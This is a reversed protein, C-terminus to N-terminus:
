LSKLYELLARKDVDSLDTGWDHGCRSNGSSLDSCDTTELVYNFVTQTTALGVKDIDYAPGVAFSAPRDAAPMLLAELTPVSGNHLYPAAAWIGELVRSEYKCEIAEGTAMMMMPGDSELDPFAGQLQLLEPPFDEVGEMGEMPMADAMGESVMESSAMTASSVTNQIIAGIVSMSLLDFAPETAGLAKGGNIFPIRAGELVGSSATRSLIECERQDTGADLIPTRWTRNLVPRTVGPAIGHCETCGGDNSARHFVQEGAAVLQDDLEWPWRPAGIMGILDEVEGLGTFNASNNTIYDRNLQLFRDQVTPHFIGFVGYVEGLNRALGLIANGNEAFGPWQTFDQRAANWLFPYRAPADAIEINAEIIFNDEPTGLDLGTLRNFIMSVADLRSPGWAPTPLSNDVLAHFRASWIEVQGLLADREAPSSGGGLVKEAFTTFAAADALINLVADDLDRLFSQFDVIGPGGDIRYNTGNVDIQRTHCASCTMGINDTGDQLAITFGIPVDANARRPLPLYGYRALADELFGQGDPQDLARMWSLPMIRSGQDRTYFAQRTQGTWDEGQNVIVTQATLATITALFVAIALIAARLLIGPISLTRM